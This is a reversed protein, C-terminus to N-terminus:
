PNRRVLQPGYTPFHEYLTAPSHTFNNEDMRMYPRTVRILDASVDVLTVIGRNWTGACCRIIDGPKIDKIDKVIWPSDPPALQEKMAYVDRWIDADWSGTHKDWEILRGLLTYIEKESPITM